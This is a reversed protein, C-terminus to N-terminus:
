YVSSIGLETVEVIFDPAFQSNEPTGSRTLYGCPNSVVRCAGIQYDVSHHLHGHVWLDVERM